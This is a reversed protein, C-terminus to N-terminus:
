SSIAGPQGPVSSSAWSPKRGVPALRNLLPGTMATTLLAMVVMMSYIRHDLVGLQVGTTLVVLETLGRTNMLAALASAQRTGVGAARAGAFSGLFKGGIAVVLILGLTGIGSLGLSSLNVNFGAIVFFVPMLLLTSVQELRDHIQKSIRDQEGRPVILGVLFAGFIFNLGVWELLAASGLVAALVVALGRFNGSTEAQGDEDVSGILWTLAKRGFLLMLAVFPVVISIRWLPQGGRAALYVVVALMTWAILDGVAAASLSIGGVETRTLRRDDLIRALVPFATVAMATGLFLVFALKHTETQRDALWLALVVGLGFPVTISGIAVTTATKLRGRLQVHDAELGVLFMFLAIGLDALATLSPRVDTPFLSKTIWGNFLTPGLLIGAVIEGIVAPQGLRRAVLGFLQAFILIIALDILIQFTQSSTV